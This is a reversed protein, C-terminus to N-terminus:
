LKDKIYICKKEEVERWGEREEEEGKMQSEKSGM